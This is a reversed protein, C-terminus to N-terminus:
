RKNLSGALRIRVKQSFYPENTVRRESRINSFGFEKLLSISSVPLFFYSIYNM